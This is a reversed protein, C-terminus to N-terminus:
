RDVHAGTLQLLEAERTPLLLLGSKARDFYTQIISFGQSAAYRQIFDGQNDLSYRQHDTPVHLYQAAPVSARVTPM